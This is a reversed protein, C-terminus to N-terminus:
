GVAIMQNEKKFGKVVDLGVNLVQAVLNAPTLALLQLLSFNQALDAKWVELYFM